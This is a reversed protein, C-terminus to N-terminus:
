DGLAVRTEGEDGTRWARAMAEASVPTAIEGGPTVCIAGGHGGLVRVDDLAARAAEGLPADAFAM